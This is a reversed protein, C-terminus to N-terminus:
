KILCKFVTNDQSSRVYGNTKYVCQPHGVKFFIIDTNVKQLQSIELDSNQTAAVSILHWSFDFPPKDYSTIRASGSAPVGGLRAEGEFLLTDTSFMSSFSFAASSRLSTLNRLALSTSCLPVITDVQVNLIHALLKTCNRQPKGIPM